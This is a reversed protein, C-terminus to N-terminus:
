LQSTFVFPFSVRLPAGSTPFRSAKVLDNVCVLLEDDGVTDETVCQEPVDGSPTITWHMVVQGSLQPHVRLRREYCQQLEGVHNRVETEVMWPVPTGGFRLPALADDAGDTSPAGLTVTGPPTITVSEPTSAVAPPALLCTLWLLLVEARARVIGPTRRAAVSSSITARQPQRPPTNM